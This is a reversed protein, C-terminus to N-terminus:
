DVTFALLTLCQQTIMAELTSPNKGTIGKAVFETHTHTHTDMHTSVQNNTNHIEHRRNAEHKYFSTSSPVTHGIFTIHCKGLTETYAMISTEKSTHALLAPFSVIM